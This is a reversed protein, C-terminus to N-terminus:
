PGVPSTSSSAAPSPSMSASPSANNNNSSGQQQQQQQNVMNLLFVRAIAAFADVQQRVQQPDVKSLGQPVEFQSPDVDTSIDSMVAVIKLGKVGQVNGTAESSLEARLPLGTDKDVYVFTEAKVEGAATGTQSTGAYRYKVATRGDLTEEGVREYGRQQKLYQVMQGPTMMRAVDFGLAEQTLEAYQKRNPLVAYRKDSRDLYIVPEGNPMKFSIRRADGDRAVEATLKPINPTSGGGTAEATLVLTARYKDPERTEIMPGADATAPSANVNMAPSMNANAAATNSNSNTAPQQCASGFLALALTASLFLLTSPKLAFIRM